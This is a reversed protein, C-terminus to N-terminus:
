VSLAIWTLLVKKITPHDFENGYFRLFIMKRKETISLNQRSVLMIAKASDFMSFGMIMREEKNKQMFKKRMIEAIVDPTDNM